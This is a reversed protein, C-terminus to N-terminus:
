KTTVILRTRAQEFICDITEVFHPIDGKGGAERKRLGRAM